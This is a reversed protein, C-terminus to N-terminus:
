KAPNLTVAVRYIAPGDVELDQSATEAGDAKVTVRYHAREPPLRFTFSGYAPDSVRDDLKKLSGDPEVRSLEVRAGAVSRGAANFVSGRVLALAGDDVPLFLRDKLSVIKGARVNIDEMRGVQLGAKRLTLGYIGPALGQVEFEGKSNTTAQAVEEDGRRVRVSVNAASMGADVRVRGSIGGTTPTQKKRIKQASANATLAVFTILLVTTLRISFKRGFM